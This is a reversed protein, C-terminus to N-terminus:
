IQLPNLVLSLPDLKRVNFWETLFETDWRCGLFCIPAVTKGERGNVVWGSSHIDGVGNSDGFIELFCVRVGGLDEWVVCKRQLDSKGRSKYAIEAGQPVKNDGSCIGYEGRPALLVM